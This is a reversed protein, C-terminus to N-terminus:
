IKELIGDIIDESKSVVDSILEGGLLLYDEKIKIMNENGIQAYAEVSKIAEELQDQHRSNSIRGGNHVM